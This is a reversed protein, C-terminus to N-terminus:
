TVSKNIYTAVTLYCMEAATCRILNELVVRSYTSPSKNEERLKFRSNQHWTIKGCSSRSRAETTTTLAQGQQCRLGSVCMVDRYEFPSLQKMMSLQPQDRIQRHQSSVRSQSDSYFPSLWCLGAATEEALLTAICPPTLTVTCFSLFKSNM